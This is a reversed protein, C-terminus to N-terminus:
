YNETKFSDSSFEEGNYSLSTETWGDNDTARIELNAKILNAVVPGILNVINTMMMNKDRNVQNYQNELAQYKKKLDELSEELKKNYERLRNNDEVLQVKTLVAM